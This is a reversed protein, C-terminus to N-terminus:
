GYNNLLPADTGPRLLTRGGAANLFVLRRERAFSNVTLHGFPPRRFWTGGGEQGAAGRSPRM